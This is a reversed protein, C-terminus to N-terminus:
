GKFQNPSKGFKRKFMKSFYKADSFGVKFAAESVSHGYKQLLEAGVKLRYDRLFEVVNQGTLSKVKKYLVSHSMGIEKAILEVGLNENSINSDILNVLDSLFEQDPTNLNLERTATSIDTQIKDSVLKRNRLLNRVRIKLLSENFPKTIYDDAGRELGERKYILSSRGTLLIVPIHSTRKDSKLKSTLTIGDMEPMMIDSIIVDPVQQFALNLADKGNEVKLVTFYSDFISELYKLIETNDEVILITRDNNDDISFEVEDFGDEGVFSEKPISKINQEPIHDSGKPLKVSFTTGQNLESELMIEGSHQQIIDKTIFLGLGFGNQNGMETIRGRSFPHFIKEINESAIGIGNDSVKLFLYQDDDELTISIRGHEKTYKIANSILNYIVKEFQVADFFLRITEKSTEFHYEINKSDAEDRFALFIERVFEVINSKSFELELAQSEIKRFDLMENVLELLHATNKKITRISQQINRDSVIVNAIKSASSNILTLPTRLEHSINTFFTQKLENIEQDKKRLLQETRLLFKIQAWRSSYIFFLYFLGFFIIAYILFAWVTKWWPTTIHLALSAQNLYKDNEDCKSRVMLVYNGHSLNTYTISTRSGINRWDEEFNQLKVQYECDSSSPFLLTSFEITIVDHNHQFNLRKAFTILTDSISEYAPNIEENFIKLSTFVLSKRNTQDDQNRTNITVFGNLGGFFIKGNSKAVSGIHFEDQDELRYSHFTSVKSSASRYHVIGNKTSFWIDGLDDVEIATIIESPLRGPEVLQSRELTSLDFMDLGGGWYGAYIKGSTNSKLSIVDDNDGDLKIFENSRTNFLNIGGGYTAIWITSDNPMELDTIDNDSISNISDTKIFNTINGTTLNLKGLGGGWTGLWVIYDQLIFDKIHNHSLGNGTNFHKFERTHLDYVGLGNLYTGILLKNDKVFLSQVYDGPLWDANAKTYIQHTNSTLDHVVLGNGDTGVYLLSDYSLLSLVPAPDDGTIDSFFYEVNKPKPDLVSIGNWETGFWIHGMNDQFISSVNDGTISQTKSSEKQFLNIFVLDSDLKILGLNCGIWVHGNLKQISGVARLDSFNAIPFPVINRGNLLYLGEDWTGVLFQMLGIQGVSKIRTPTSSSLQNNSLKSLQFDFYLLGHEDTGLLITSHDFQSINNIPGQLGLEIKVLQFQAHSSIVRFLGTETGVWISNNVLKIHNVKISEPNWNPNIPKIIEFTDAVPHYLYLGNYTGIWMRGREDFGIDSVGNGLLNSNNKQYVKFNNGDYRNLGDRTAIWIFGVADQEIDSISGSSLGNSTTINYFYENSQAASILSLGISLLTLVISKM